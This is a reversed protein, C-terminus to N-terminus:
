CDTTVRPVNAAMDRVKPLNFVGGKEKRRAMEVRIRKAEADIASLRYELETDTWKTLPLKLCDADNNM